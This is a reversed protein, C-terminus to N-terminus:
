VQRASSTRYMWAAIARVLRNRHGLYKKPDKVCNLVLFAKPHYVLLYEQFSLKLDETVWGEGPKLENRHDRVWGQEYQERASKAVDDLACWESGFTEPCDESASEVAEALSLYDIDKRAMRLLRKTRECTM